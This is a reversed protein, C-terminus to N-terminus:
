GQPFNELNLEKFIDMMLAAMEKPTERSDGKAIWDAIIRQGGLVLFGSLYRARSPGLRDELAEITTDIPFIRSKEFINPRVRTVLVQFQDMRKQIGRFFETMQELADASSPHKLFLDLDSNEELESTLSEEVLALLQFQDEYYRYFSSRSIQARDCIAQVTIQEFDKERLLDLFGDIIMKKTIRVRQNGQKENTAM